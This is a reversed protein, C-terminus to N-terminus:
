YNKVIVVCCKFFNWNSCMVFYWYSYTGQPFPAPCKIEAVGVIEGGSCLVAFVRVYCLM